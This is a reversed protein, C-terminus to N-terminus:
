PASRGRNAVLESLDVHETSPEDNTSRRSRVRRTDPLIVWRGARYMGKFLRKVAVLGVLAAFAVLAPKGIATALGKKDSLMPSLLGASVEGGTALKSIIADEFKPCTVDDQLGAVQNDGFMPQIPKVKSTLRATTPDVIASVLYREHLSLFRLDGDFDVDVLDGGQFGDLSGETISMVRFRATPRVAAVLEGVFIGYPVPAASCGPPLTTDPVATTPPPAVTTPPVNGNGPDTVVIGPDEEDQAAASTAGACIAVLSLGVILWRRM